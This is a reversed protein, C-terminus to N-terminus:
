DVINKSSRSSRSRKSVLNETGEEKETTYKEASSFGKFFLILWALIFSLGGL